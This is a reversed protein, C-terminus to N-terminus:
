RQRALVMAKKPVNKDVAYKAKKGPTLQEAHGMKALRMLVVPCAKCRPKDKCCKKKAAVKPM